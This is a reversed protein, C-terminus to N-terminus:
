RKTSPTGAGDARNSGKGALTIKRLDGYEKLRPARYPKKLKRPKDM